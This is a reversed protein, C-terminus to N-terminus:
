RHRVLRRDEDDAALQRSQPVTGPQATLAAQFAADRSAKEAKHQQKEERNSLPMDYRDDGKLVIEVKDPHAEHYEVRVANGVAPVVFTPVAIKQEAGARYVPAVPPRVELVFRWTEYHWHHYNSGHEIVSEHVMERMVVVAQAQAKHGFM